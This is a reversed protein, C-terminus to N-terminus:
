LAVKLRAMEMAATIEEHSPNILIFMNEEKFKCFSKKLFNKMALVDTKAQNLDLYL